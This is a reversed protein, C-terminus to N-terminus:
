AVRRRVWWVSLALLGISLASLGDESEEVVPFGESELLDWAFSRFIPNV